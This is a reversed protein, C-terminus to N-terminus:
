YYYYFEDPLEKEKRWFRNKRLSTKIKIKFLTPFDANKTTRELVQELTSRTWEILLTMSIQSKARPDERSTTSRHHSAMKNQCSSTLFDQNPVALALFCMLNLTKSNRRSRLTLKMWRRSLSLTEQTFIMSICELHWNFKLFFVRSRQFNQWRQGILSMLYPWIM